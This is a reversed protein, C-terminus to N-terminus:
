SRSYTWSSTDTAAILNNTVIDNKFINLFSRNKLHQTQVQLYMKMYDSDERSRRAEERALRAEERAQRAEEQAQRAEEQARRTEERRISGSSSSGRPRDFQVVGDGM